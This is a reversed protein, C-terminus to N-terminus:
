IRSGVINNGTHIDYVAEGISKHFNLRSDSYNFQHKKWNYEDDFKNDSPHGYLAEKEKTSLGQFFIKRLYQSSKKTPFWVYISSEATCKGPKWVMFYDKNKISYEQSFDRISKLQIMGHDADFIPNRINDESIAKIYNYNEPEYIIHMHLHEISSGSVNEGEVATGHEFLLIEKGTKQYVANRIDYVITELNDVADKHYLYDFMNLIHFKSVLLMHLESIPHFDPQLLFDVITDTDKILSIDCKGYYNLLTGNMHHPDQILESTDCYHCNARCLKLGSDAGSSAFLKDFFVEKSEFFTKNRGVNSLTYIKGIEVTKKESFLPILDGFLLVDNFIGFHSYCEFDYFRVEFTNIQKREKLAELNDIVIELEKQYKQAKKENNICWASYDNARKLCLSIKGVKIRSRMLCEVYNKASYAFVKIESFETAANLIPMIAENFSDYSHFDEEIFTDIATSLETFNDDYASSIKETMSSFKKDWLFSLVTFFGSLTGVIAILLKIQWHEEPILDKFMDWVFVVFSAIALLCFLIKDIVSHKVRNKM